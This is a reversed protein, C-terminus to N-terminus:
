RLGAGWWFFFGWPVLHTAHTCVERAIRGIADLTGTVKHIVEWLQWRQPQTRVDGEKVKMFIFMTFTPSLGLLLGVPVPTLCLSSPVLGTSTVVAWVLRVLM